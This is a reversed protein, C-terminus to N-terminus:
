SNRDITVHILRREGPRILFPGCTCYQYTRPQIELIWDGSPFAPLNIRVPGSSFDLMLPDAIQQGDRKVIVRTQKEDLLLGNRNTVWLHVAGQDAGVGELPL